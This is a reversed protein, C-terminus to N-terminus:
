TEELLTKIQQQFLTNIHSDNVNEKISQFSLLRLTRFIAIKIPDETSNTNWGFYLNRVFHNSAHEILWTQERKVSFIATGAPASNLSSDVLSLCSNVIIQFCDVLYICFVDAKISEIYSAIQYCFTNWQGFNLFMKRSLFVSSYPKRIMDLLQQLSKKLKIKM